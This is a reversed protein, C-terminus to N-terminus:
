SAFLGVLYRLAGTNNLVVLLAVLGLFSGIAIPLLNSKMDDELFHLPPVSEFPGSPSRSLRTILGFRM